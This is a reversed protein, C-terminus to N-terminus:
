NKETEEKNETEQKKDELLIRVAPSEDDDFQGNKASIIFVILFIVAISVSCIIM